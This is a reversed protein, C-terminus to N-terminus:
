VKRRATRSNMLGYPFYCGHQANKGPQWKPKSRTQQCICLSTSPDPQEKTLATNLFVICIRGQCLTNNKTVTSEWELTRQSHPAQRRLFSIRHLRQIFYKQPLPTTPITTLIKKVCHGSISVTRLYHFFLNLPPPFLLIWKRKLFKFKSM